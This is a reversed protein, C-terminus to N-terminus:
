ATARRIRAVVRDPTERLEHEWIRLVLWGRRRLASSVTRDRRRNRELKPGWYAENSRPRRIKCRPCTHWFCGDVFVAVRPEPFYFDPKGPLDDAHMRWGRVGSRALYARLRRETSRSGRKRIRSMIRSRTEADVRDMSEAGTHYRVGLASVRPSFCSAVCLAGQLAALTPCRGMLTHLRVPAGRMAEGLGIARSEGRRGVRGLRSETRDRPARLRARSGPPVAPTRTRFGTGRGGLKTLALM